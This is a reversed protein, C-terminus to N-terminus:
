KRYKLRQGAQRRAVEVADGVDVVHGVHRQHGLEVAVDHPHRAVVDPGVAVLGLHREDHVVLVLTPPQGRHQELVQGHRGPLVAEVPEGGGDQGAVAAHEAHEVVGPELHRAGEVLAHDLHPEADLGGVGALPHDLRPLAPRLRRRHAPQQRRAGDRHDTGTALGATDPVLHEAVEHHTPEVPGDVGDVRGAPVHGAHPGELAHELDGVPDVEGDHGHGGGAHELHHLLATALPHTAQHHEAGAEVLQRGAGLGLDDLPGVGPPHPHDAGLGHAHDVGGGAHRQHGGDAPHRDLRAPDAEEGLRAGEAQGGELVGPTEPHTERGEDVDAGLDVDGAVVQELVPGVIRVGRHNGQVQLGEAVRPLEGADHALQGPDLRDHGHAAAQGPGGVGASGGGPGTPREVLEGVRGDVGHEALVAHDPDVGRALQEVRGAHEGGLRHRGAPPHRDHGVGPARGHEGDVGADAGPQLGRGGRRRRDLRQGSPHRLPGPQM